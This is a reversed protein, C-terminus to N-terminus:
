VGVTGMVSKSQRESFKSANTIEYKISYKSDFHYDFSVFDSKPQNEYKTVIEAYDEDQIFSCTM